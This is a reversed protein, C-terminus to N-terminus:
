LAGQYRWFAELEANAISIGQDELDYVREVPWEIVEYFMNKYSINLIGTKYRGHYVINIQLGVPVPWKLDDAYIPTAVQPMGYM